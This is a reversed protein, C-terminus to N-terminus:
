ECTTGILAVFPDIDDFTVAGDGDCDANLWQCDPYAALYGEEGGLALVFPDIDDFDVDGDCDMDGPCLDPGAVYPVFFYQPGPVADIPDRFDTVRPEAFNEGGGIPGLIQNSIWDHQQGNVFTCVKFDGTPDGIAALPISVELGTLVGSGDDLGTGGTVGLINSNDITAFVYDPNDGGTLLGDTVAGGIGLFRGIGPNGEDVYLEAYSIYLEYPDNSGTALLYFDAEFGDDFWLGEVVEPTAPDDGMRNLGNFDVDPNDGRLQQQGGARTDFFIELKNWNSELNGALVLYLRDGIVTAFAQDLESGNAFAPDPNNNDGFQTQTDQVSLALGYGVDATGDITPQEPPAGCPNGVCDTGNGLFTGGAIVCDAESAIVCFTGICCAGSGCPNPDCPVDDGLYLGAIDACQDFRLVDCTDGTCCAGTNCTFETCVTNDGLYDGGQNICTLEAIIECTGGTCCAGTEISSCPNGFCSVGDGLYLGEVGACDAATMVFCEDDICCAGCAFGSNTVAFFQNGAFTTFDLTRPEGPNLAGAFGGIAGLCQNSVFDHSGGNIFACVKVNGTPAGIADLPIAIEVGTTIGFGGLDVGGAGNDGVM